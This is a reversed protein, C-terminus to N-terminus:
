YRREICKRWERPLVQKWELPSKIGDIDHRMLAVKGGDVPEFEMSFNNVPGSHTFAFESASRMWWPSIDAWMPGTVLYGDCSVSVFITRGLESVGPEGFLGTFRSLDDRSQGRQKAQREENVRQEALREQKRQAEAKQETKQLAQQQALLQMQQDKIQAALGPSMLQGAATSMGMTTTMMKMAMDSLMEGVAEAADQKGDQQYTGWLKQLSGTELMFDLSDSQILEQYRAKAAEIGEEAIVRKVEPAIVPEGIPQASGSGASILVLMLVFTLTGAGAPHSKPIM